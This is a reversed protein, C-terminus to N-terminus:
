AAARCEEVALEPTLVYRVLLANDLERVYTACAGRRELERLLELEGGVMHSMLGWATGGPLSTIRRAETETWGPDPNRKLPGLSPTWEIGTALGYLELGAASRYELADGEDPNVRDRSPANEFAAGRAGAVRAVFELRHRDPAEWNTSYYVWPAISGTFVYAPEQRRQGTLDQVLTRVDEPPDRLVQLLSIALLPLALAVGALVWARRAHVAPLRQIVRQLGSVLLLQVLPAAFLTLRLSVPYVGVVSAGIAALIPAAVLILVSWGHRVLIGRTGMVLLLLVAIAVCLFTLNSLHRGPPGPYGLGLGWVNENLLAWLREPYRDGLPILLASSWYRRLYPNHSAPEYAALYVLAVSAAWAPVSQLLFRRARLAGRALDMLACGALGALVFPAPAALWPLLAGFGTVRISPIGGYSAQRCSLGLRLTVLTLGAEVGSQKISTSYHTLLPACAVLATAVVAARDGLLRRATSATLWVLGAGFVFPLLRLAWDHVGSLMVVARQLVLFLPPASQDHDLPQLLEGYSRAAINLALRTEDLPLPPDKLVAALRLAIGGVVLAALLVDM